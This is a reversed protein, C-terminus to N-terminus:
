GAAHLPSHLAFDSPDSFNGASAVGNTCRSSRHLLEHVFLRGFGSCRTSRRNSMHSGSIPPQSPVASSDRGAHRTVSSTAEQAIPHGRYLAFLNKVLALPKSYRLRIYLSSIVAPFLGIEKSRNIALSPTGPRM